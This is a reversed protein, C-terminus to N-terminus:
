LRKSFFVEGVGGANVGHLIGCESFGRGRHWAQPAPEDVQSSSLLMSHGDDKLVEEVHRLLATGVGCGRREELVHILTIYPHVSWLFEIRIYGVPEGDLEAVLVEGAQIKRAVVKPDAHGDQCAFALDDGGAVRVRTQVEAERIILRV